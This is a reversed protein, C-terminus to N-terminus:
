IKPCQFALTPTAGLLGSIMSLMTKRIVVGLKLRDFTNTSLLKDFLNIHTAFYYGLGTM